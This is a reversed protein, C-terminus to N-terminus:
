YVVEGFIIVQMINNCTYYDDEDNVFDAWDRPIIEQSKKLGKLIHDLKLNYRTPNEDDDEDYYDECVITGGDLLRDAWKDERCRYELYEPTYKNDLHKESKLTVINLWDSGYTATSFLNVLLEKTIEM